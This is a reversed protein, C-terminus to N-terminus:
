YWLQGSHKAFLKFAKDWCRNYEEAAIKTREWWIEKDITLDDFSESGFLRRYVYEEDCNEFYFILEDLIADTEEETFSKNNEYDHFLSINKEKFERFLVPMKAAFSFGLEFVDTDDYGRWARQWAYRVQWMLDPIWDWICQSKPKRLADRLGLIKEM